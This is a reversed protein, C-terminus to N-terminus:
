HNKTFYEYLKKLIMEERDIKDLSDEHIAKLESEKGDFSKDLYECYVGVIAVFTDFSVTKDGLKSAETELWKGFSYAHFAEEQQAKLNAIQINKHKIQKILNTVEFYDSSYITATSPLSVPITKTYDLYWKDEVSDYFVKNHINPSTEVLNWGHSPKHMNILHHLKFYHIFLLITYKTQIVARNLSKYLKLTSLNNGVNFM